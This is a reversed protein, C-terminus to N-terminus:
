YTLDDLVQVAERKQEQLLHIYTDYTIKVSAHGLIESVTKVSVGKNFLLSAFTHRLSHVGCPEIGANKLVSKFSKIFRTPNVIDGGDEQQILLHGKPNLALLNNVAIMAQNNLDIIRDGSYTKTGNQVKAEYGTVESIDDGDRQRVVAVDRQIHLTQAALDIDTKYIGLCEGLRIGTNLILIFADRYRYKYRGTSYYENLECKIKALEDESFIRAQKTEFKSKSPLSVLLMPNKAVVNKILAYSFVANLADHVKKITSYSFKQAFLDNVISQIDETTIKPLQKSGINPKIHTNITSELRDFSTSKLEHKKYNYLWNDIYDDFKISSINTPLFKDKDRKYEKLKRKVLAETKASFSKIDPKGDPKTGIQIKAVWKTDSVQFVSGDGNNKRTAM